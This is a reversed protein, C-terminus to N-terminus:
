IDGQTTETESPAILSGRINLVVTGVREKTVSIYNIKYRPLRLSEIYALYDLIMRYDRMPAKIDVPLVKMGQTKKFNTVNIKSGKLNTKIEDLTKLILMEPTIREEANLNLSDKIYRMMTDIRGIQEEIQKRHSTMKNITELTDTLYANYKHIIILSFVSLGLIVGSIVYLPFKNKLYDFYRM